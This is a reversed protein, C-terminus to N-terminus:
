EGDVEKCSFDAEWATDCEDCEYRCKMTDESWEHESHNCEGCNPCQALKTHHAEEFFDGRDFGDSLDVDYKEIFKECRNCLYYNNFECEWVGVENRCSEGIEIKRVCYECTHPKRTKKIKKSEWFSM